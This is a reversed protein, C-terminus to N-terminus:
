IKNASLIEAFTQIRTRIQEDVVSQSNYEIYATPIGADTVM